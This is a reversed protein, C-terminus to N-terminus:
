QSGSSMEPQWRGPLLAAYKLVWVGTSLGLWAPIWFAEVLRHGHCEPARLHSSPPPLLSVSRSWSGVSCQGWWAIRCQSCSYSAPYESFLMTEAVCMLYIGIFYKLLFWKGWRSGEYRGNREYETPLRLSCFASACLLPFSFLFRVSWYVVVWMCVCINYFSCIWLVRPWWSHKNFKDQWPPSEAWSWKEGHTSAPLTPPQGCVQKM